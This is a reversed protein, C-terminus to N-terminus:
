PSPAVVWVFTNPMNPVATEDIVSCGADAFVKRTEQYNRPTIGQLGHVYDFGPMISPCDESMSVMDAILLYQLRPFHRRLSQLFRMCSTKPTLDHFVMNMMAVTVDEWVEHLHTIDGKIIEVFSNKKAFEENAKIVSPDKEIGLGQIGLQTCIEILKKATGCGLDCLTGKPQIQQFIRLILPDLDDLGFDVSSAAIASFDIDSDMWSAPHNLLHYQNALLNRYGVLPLVISGIHNGLNKGLPTLYYEGGDFVVVEVSTLTALAARILSPNNYLQLSKEQIKKGTLMIDLIGSSKLLCLAHCSLGKSLFDLHSPLTPASRKTSARAHANTKNPKEKNKKVKM